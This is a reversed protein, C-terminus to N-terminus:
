RRPNGTIEIALALASGASASERTADAHPLPELVWAEPSLIVGAILESGLRVM